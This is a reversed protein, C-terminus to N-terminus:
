GPTTAWYTEWLYRRPTQGSEHIAAAVDRGVYRYHWPEYAYCTEGRKGKPYSMVFGHEWAHEELWGGARSTAWDDFQWPPTADDASRFDLSTGLQHESHGPRASVKRAEEESSQDVWGQFTRVQYAYSRYASQVALAADDAKAATAMATLDDLMVRSVEYGKNLGAKGTDVLREPEFDEPLAFVTDLVLTAWDTAPDGLVPVDLYECEPLPRPSAVALSTPVETPAPTAVLTAPTHTTAEPVGTPTAAGGLTCGGAV